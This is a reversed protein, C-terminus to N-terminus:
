PFVTASEPWKGKAVLRALLYERGRLVRWRSDVALQGEPSASPGELIGV